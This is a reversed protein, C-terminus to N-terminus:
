VLVAVEQRASPVATCTHKEMEINVTSFMKNAMYSTLDLKELVNDLVVPYHKIVFHANLWLLWKELTRRGRFNVLAKCSSFESEVLNTTICKGKFFHLLGVLVDRIEDDSGYLATITGKRADYQYVHTQGIKYAHARKKEKIGKNLDVKATNKSKKKKNRSGKPRGLKGKTKKIEKVFVQGIFGNTEVLIDNITAFTKLVIKDVFHRVLTIIVRGYPPKHIHRVHIVDRGLEKAVKQYARYGDTILYVFPSSLRQSVYFLMKLIEMSTRHSVVNFHLVRGMENVIVILYWTKKKITVFTEDIFLLNGAVPEAWFQKTKISQAVLSIIVALINYISATSAPIATKLTSADLRGGNLCRGINIKLEEGMAKAHYSTHPYFSKGCNRCKLKQPNGEVSTDHGNLKIDDSECDPCICEIRTEHVHEQNGIVLPFTLLESSM